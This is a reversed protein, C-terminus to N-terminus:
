QATEQVAPGRKNELYLARAVTDSMKSGVIDGLDSGLADMKAKTEAIFNDVVQGVGSFGTQFGTQMTTMQEPSMTAATFVNGLRGGYGQEYQSFQDKRGVASSVDGLKVRKGSDFDRLVQEDKKQQKEIEKEYEAKTASTRGKARLNNEALGALSQFMGKAQDHIQKATEHVKMLGDVWAKTGVVNQNMMQVTAHMATQLPAGSLQLIRSVNEQQYAALADYDSKRQMLQSHSLEAQRKTAGEELEVVKTAHEIELKRLSDQNQAADVGLAIKGELERRKASYLDDEARAEDEISAALSERQRIQENLRAGVDVGANGAGARVQAVDAEIKSLADQTERAAKVRRVGANIDAEALDRISTLRKAKLEAVKLAQDDDLKALARRNAMVDQGEAIGRQLAFRRANYAATIAAEEQEYTKARKAANEQLSASLENDAKLNAYAAKAVEDAHAVARAGQTKLLDGRKMALEALKDELEIGKLNRTQVKADLDFAELEKQSKEAIAAAVGEYAQRMANASDAAEVQRRAMKESFEASAKASEIAQKPLVLEKFLKAAAKGYEQQEKSSAAVDGSLEAWGARFGSLWRRFGPLSADNMEALHHQWRELEEDAKAFGEQARALDLQKLARSAGFSAESLRMINGVYESVVHAGIVVAATVGGMALTAGSLAGSTQLIGGTMQNLHQRFYGAGPVFNLTAGILM